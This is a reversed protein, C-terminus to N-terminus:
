IMHPVVCLFLTYMFSNSQLLEKQKTYRKTVIHINTKILILTLTPFFISYISKILLDFFIYVDVTRLLHHVSRWRRSSFITRLLSYRFENIISQFLPQTVDITKWRELPALILSLLYKHFYYWYLNNYNTDFSFSRYETILTVTKYCSVLAWKQM